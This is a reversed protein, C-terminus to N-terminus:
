QACERCLGYLVTKSKDVSFGHEDAIHASLRDIHECELHILRGCSSCKLHFHRHCNEGEFSYCASDGGIYKRVLGQSLLKDLNRYVTAAGIKEGKARLAKIIDDATMHTGNGERLVTKVLELPRTNYGTENRM